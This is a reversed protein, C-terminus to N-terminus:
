NLMIIKKKVPLKGIRISALSSIGQEVTHIKQEQTKFCSLEAHNVNQYAGSWNSFQRKLKLFLFM